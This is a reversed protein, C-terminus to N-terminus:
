PGILRPRLARLVLARMVQLQASVWEFWALLLDLIPAMSILGIVDDWELRVAFLSKEGCVRPQPMFSLPPEEVAIPSLPAHQNRGASGCYISM